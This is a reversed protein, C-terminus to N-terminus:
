NSFYLASDEAYIGLSFYKLYFFTDNLFINFNFFGTYIGTLVDAM